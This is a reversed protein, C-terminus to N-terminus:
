RAPLERGLFRRVTAPLLALTDAQGVPGSRGVKLAHDAGAVPVVEVAPAGAAAAEVEDATGLADRTGQLVLVPVEPRLLEEARSREPRRPPHLPFALCVVASAGTAGATRCAVRAGASRGGVVVPVGAALETVAPLAALWGIDLAAPRPAVRRGALVWPQEHRVVTVGHRPLEEALVALDPAGAGGGAGHGLWLLAAPDEAPSVLLRGPGTETPVTLETPRPM